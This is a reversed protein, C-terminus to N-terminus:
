GGMQGRQGSFTAGIYEGCRPDRERNGGNSLRARHQKCDRILDIQMTATKARGPVGIEGYDGVCGFLWSAGASGVFPIRSGAFSWWNGQEAEGLLPTQKATVVCCRYILM